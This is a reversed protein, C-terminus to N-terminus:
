PEMRELKQLLEQSVQAIRELSITEPSTFDFRTKIQDWMKKISPRYSYQASKSVLYFLTYNPCDSFGSLVARLYREEQHLPQGQDKAMRAAMALLSPLFLHFGQEVFYDRAEVKNRFLRKEFVDECIEKLDQYLFFTLPDRKGKWVIYHSEPKKPKTQYLSEFYWQLISNLGDRHIYIKKDGASLLREADNGHQYEHFPMVIKNGLILYNVTIKEPIEVVHRGSSLIEALLYSHNGKGEDWVDYLFGKPLLFSQIQKKDRYDFRGATLSEFKERYRRHYFEVKMKKREFLSARVWYESLCTKRLSELIKEEITTKTVSWTIGYLLLMGLCLHVYRSDILWKLSSKM